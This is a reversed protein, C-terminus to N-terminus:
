HQAQLGQEACAILGKAQDSSLLRVTVALDAIGSQIATTWSAADRHASYQEVLIFNSVPEIAVLCPHPGHFNEDPVLAIDKHPMGQALRRREEAGYCLLDDQVATALAHLAGVSSAVFRDLQSQRLFLQLLRLGVAARFAFVVFLALVLRRLFRQGAASHLFVALEPEVDAPLPQRLWYGLTARPIGHEQAYQRQSSDCDPSRFQDCAHARRDADWRFPGQRPDAAPTPQPPTM